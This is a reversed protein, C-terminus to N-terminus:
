ALKGSLSTHSTAADEYEQLLNKESVIFTRHVTRHDFRINTDYYFPINQKDSKVYKKEREGKAYILLQLSHLPERSALRLSLHNSPFFIM